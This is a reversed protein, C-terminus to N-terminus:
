KRMDAFTRVVTFGAAEYIMRAPNNEGTFLTMFSAEMGKLENCLMCFLVKALGRKQFAKDIGIGAFYGRGSSEVDLPGTFGCVNEKYVPVLIPRGGEYVPKELLIDRIWMPNEFSEIVEKMNNHIRKNYVEFTFGQRYLEEKKQRIAESYQFDSLSLYYCNQIAFDAYGCTLFFPYAMSKIDIGPLNPHNAQGEPIGWSFTIPNFFSLEISDFGSRLFLEKELANLLERGLGKRREEKAVTIMTIFAKKMNKDICGSAFGRGEKEILNVCEQERKAFIKDRFTEIKISEHLIDKNQVSQMYLDYARKEEQPHKIFCFEM